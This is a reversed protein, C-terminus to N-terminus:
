NTFLINYSDVLGYNFNDSATYTTKTEYNRITSPMHSLNFTKNLAETNTNIYILNCSNGKCCTVSKDYSNNSSSSYVTSGSPCYTAFSKTINYGQTLVGSDDSNFQPDLVMHWKSPYEPYTTSENLYSCKESWQYIQSTVNAPYSILLSIYAWGPLSQKTPMFRLNQSPQQKQQEMPCGANM